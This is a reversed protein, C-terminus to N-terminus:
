QVVDDVIEDSSPELGFSTTILYIVLKCDFLLETSNEEKHYLLLQPRNYSMM